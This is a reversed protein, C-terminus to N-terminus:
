TILNKPIAYVYASASLEFGRLGEVTVGPMWVMRKSEAAGTHEDSYLDIWKGFFTLNPQTIANCGRM